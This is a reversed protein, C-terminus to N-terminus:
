APETQAAPAANQQTSSRSPTWSRCRRKSRRSAAESIRSGAEAAANLALISTHFAIGDIVGIIEAFRRSSESGAHVALAAAQVASDASQRVIGTLQEMSWATQRLSAARLGTRASLDQNGAATGSDNVPHKIRM